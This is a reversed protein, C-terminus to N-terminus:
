AGTPVERGLQMLGPSYTLAYVTINYEQLLTLTEHLDAKSSRDRDETMILIVRRRAAPESRLAQASARVADVLACGWNKAVLERLQKGVEDVGASLPVVVEAEDRFAVLGVRGGEGVLLPGLLSAAQRLRHLPKRAEFSAHVAMVLSIPQPEEEVTVSRRQGSDVLMFDLATLGRVFKGARDTVTAPTLILASEATFQLAMPVKLLARRSWLM